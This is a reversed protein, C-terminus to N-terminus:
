VWIEVAVWETLPIPEAYHENDFALLFILDKPKIPFPEVNNHVYNGIRLETVNM